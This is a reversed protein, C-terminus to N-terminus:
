ENLSKSTLLMSALPSTMMGALTSQTMRLTLSAHKVLQDPLAVCNEVNIGREVRAPSAVHTMDVSAPEGSVTM